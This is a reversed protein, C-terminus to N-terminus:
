AIGKLEGNGVFHVIDGVIATCIAKGSRGPFLDDISFEEDIAPKVGSISKWGNWSILGPAYVVFEPDYDPPLRVIDRHINIAGDNDKESSDFRKIM